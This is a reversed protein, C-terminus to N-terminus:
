DLVKVAMNLSSAITAATMNDLTLGEDNFMTPSLLLTTAEAAARDTALQAIVDQATLLGAVDVNGGFFGNAIPLIRERYHPLLERLVAAFATGTAVVGGRELELELKLSLPTRELKDAFQRLMGIGDALLPYDGYYAAAPLHALVDKPWAKIFFEDALQVRPALHNVQRIVERASQSTDYGKQVAAYRTYGYPVLGTATIGPRTAIWALTEDLV